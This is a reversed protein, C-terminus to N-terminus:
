QDPQDVRVMHADFLEAARRVLPHEAREAM